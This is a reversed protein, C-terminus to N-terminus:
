PAQLTILTRPWSTMCHYSTTYPQINLGTESSVHILRSQSTLWLGNRWFAKLSKPSFRLSDSLDSTTSPLRRTSRPFPLSTLYSRLRPFHGSSLSSNFIHTLPQSLEFAFEKVVRAPTTSINCRINSLESQVDARKIVPPAADAPLYAPFSELDLAPLQSCVSAFHQNITEALHQRTEYEPFNLPENEM